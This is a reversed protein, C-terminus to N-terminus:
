SRADIPLQMQGAAAPTTPLTFRVTTGKQV